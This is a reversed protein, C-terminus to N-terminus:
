RDEDWVDLADQVHKDWNRADDRINLAHAVVAGVIWGATAFLPALLLFRIM